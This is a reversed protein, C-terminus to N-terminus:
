RFFGMNPTNAAKADRHFFTNLKLLDLRVSTLSSDVEPRWEGITKNFTTTAV